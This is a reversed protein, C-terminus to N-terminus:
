KKMLLRFGPMSTAMALFRRSLEVGSPHARSALQNSTPLGFNRGTRFQKVWYLLSLFGNSHGHLHLNKQHRPDIALEKSQEIEVILADVDSLRDKV